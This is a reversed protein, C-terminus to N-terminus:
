ERDDMERPRLAVLVEPERELLLNGAFRTAIVFLVVGYLLAVVIGAAALWAQQRWIAVGWLAGAPLSVM